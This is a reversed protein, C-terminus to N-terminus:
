AQYLDAANRPQSAGIGHLAYGGDPCDVGVIPRDLTYPQRAALLTAGAMSGAQDPGGYGEAPPPNVATQGFSM